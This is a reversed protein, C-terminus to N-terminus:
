QKKIVRFVTKSGVSTPDLAAGTTSSFYMIESYGSLLDDLEDPEFMIDYDTVFNPNKINEHVIVISGKKLSNLIKDLLPKRM